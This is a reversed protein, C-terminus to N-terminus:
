AARGPPRGVRACHRGELARARARALPQRPSSGRHAEGSHLATLAGGGHGDIGTRRRGDRACHM